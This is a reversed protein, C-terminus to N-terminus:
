FPISHEESESTPPLADPPHSPPAGPTAHDQADDHLDIIELDSIEDIRSVRPLPRLVGRLTVVDSSLHAKGALAYSDAALFGRAHIEGQEDDFFTFDVEGSPRPDDGRPQGRLADVFGIFSAPRPQPATRLRPALVEAVAFAEQPLQVGRAREALSPLLARSWVASFVLSGRYDAPRLLLLAECLNASLGPHRNLDLLDEAHAPDDAQALAELTQTLLNTVRRAFPENQM